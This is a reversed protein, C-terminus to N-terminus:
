SGDELSESSSILVDSASITPGESASVTAAATAAAKAGAGPGSAPGAAAMGMGSLRACCTSCSSFRMLSMRRPMLSRSMQAAAATHWVHRPTDSESSNQVSTASDLSLIDWACTPKSCRTHCTCASMLATDAAATFRWCQQLWAGVENGGAAPQLHRRQGLAVLPDPVQHHAGQWTRRVLSQHPLKQGPQALQLVQVECSTLAGAPALAQAHLCQQFVMAESPARSSHAFVHMGHLCCLWM